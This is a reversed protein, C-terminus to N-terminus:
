EQGMMWVKQFLLQYDKQLRNKVKDMVVQVHILLKREQVLVSHALKNFQLFVKIQVFKAMEEVILVGILVIVLSLDM